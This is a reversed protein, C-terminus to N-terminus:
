IRRRLVERNKESETERDTKTETVTEPDTKTAAVTM